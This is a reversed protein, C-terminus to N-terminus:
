RHHHREAQPPPGDDDFEVAMATGTGFECDRPFAQAERRVQVVDLSVVQLHNRQLRLKGLAQEVRVRRRGPLIDM